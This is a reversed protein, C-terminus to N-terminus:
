KRKPKRSKKSKKSRSKSKSKGIYVKGMKKMSQYQKSIKKVQAGFALKKMAPRAMEHKLYRVWASKKIKRVGSGLKRGKYYLSKSKSKSKLVM